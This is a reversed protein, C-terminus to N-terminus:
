MADFFDMLAELVPEKHVHHLAHSVGRLQVHVPHALLRQAMAVEGDTMMGGSTPDAQLLLIPCQIAPLLKDADYGAVTEEYRNLLAQYFDADNQYLNGALWEFVPSEEGYAERMSVLNKSGPMEVPANKLAELLEAMPLQGGALRGWEALKDRTGDLVAWWAEATLPADGIALAQLLEPRQGAVMLAVVGGLSHGFFGVPAGVQREIFAIVDAAYDQLRYHGPTWSSKGHGRFDLAYVHWREALRPLIGEYSQWRASGGHLLVLPPHASPASSISEAYNIVVTGTDFIQERIQM